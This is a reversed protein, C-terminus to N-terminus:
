EFKEVRPTTETTTEAGDDSGRSASTGAFGFGVGIGVTVTVAVGLGLGEDFPYDVINERLNRKEKGM